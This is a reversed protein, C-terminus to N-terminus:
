LVFSHNGKKTLITHFVCKHQTPLFASNRLTCCITCVFLNQTRTHTHTHTHISHRLSYPVSPATMLWHATNSISPEATLQVGPLTPMNTLSSLTEIAMNRAFQRLHKCKQSSHQFHNNRTDVPLSRVSNSQLFNNVGHMKFWYQWKIYWTFARVICTMVHQLSTVTIARITLATLQYM